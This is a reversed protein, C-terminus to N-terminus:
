LLPLTLLYLQGCNESQDKEKEVVPIKRSCMFIVLIMFGCVSHTSGRHSIQSRTRHTRVHAVSSLPLAFREVIDLGNTPQGAQAGIM